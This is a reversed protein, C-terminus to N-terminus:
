VMRCCASVCVSIALHLSPCLIMCATVGVNQMIANTYSDLFSMAIRWSLITTFVLYTQQFLAPLVAAMNSM